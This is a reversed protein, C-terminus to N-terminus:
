MPEEIGEPRTQFLIQILIFNGPVCSLHQALLGDSKLLRHQACQRGGAGVLFLFYKVEKFTLSFCVSIPLLFPSISPVPVGPARGCM